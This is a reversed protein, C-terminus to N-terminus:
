GAEGKWIELTVELGGLRGRRVQVGGREGYKLRLRRHINVIGTTEIFSSEVALAAVLSALKAEQLSPGNDSIHILLSEEGEEFMVKLVGGEEVEEFAHEFANEILPQLVLRPVMVAKYAEPVEGYEVRLRLRFRREQIEAYMRAHRAEEYLPAEDSSNRTIYRLYSGMQNAFHKASEYDEAALMNYLNFYSNYLFHPNIQSQLQKLESRQALIRQKYVQEILELLHESMKNFGQYLYGFEDRSGAALSVNLDGKEVKRFARLLQLLPRHISRYLVICLVIIFVLFLGSLIWFLHKYRQLDQFLQQEPMYHALTLGLTESTQSMLLVRQKGKGYSITEELKPLGDHAGREYAAMWEGVAEPKEGRTQVLFGHEVDILLSGSYESSDLEELSRRLEDASLAAVIAYLAHEGEYLGPVEHLLLVHPVGNWYYLTRGPSKKELEIITRLEQGNAAEPGDMASVTQGISPIHAWVDAIHVSSNKLAFLQQQVQLIAQSQEYDNMSDPIVALKNLFTDNLMEYQLIQIREADKELSRLNANLRSDMSGSIERRLAQEGGAYFNIGILVVPILMAALVCALRFFLSHRFTFPM